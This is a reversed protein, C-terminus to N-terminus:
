RARADPRLWPEPDIAEGSRQIELYLDPAPETRDPMAGIPEGALVTRGAEAYVAALGAIVMYYDDGVNLILLGHYAGFPGAFEVHADFPSVVQAQPRASILVGEAPEDNDDDEGFRRVVHGAVPPRLRGRVDAFRLTELPEAPALAAVLTQNPRLTPEPTGSDIDIRLPNLRPTVASMAQLRAMLGRLTRAEDGAARAAQAYQAAESRRERELAERRAILEEIEGRQRDLLTEAQELVGRQTQTAGRVTRLRELQAALADARERLAPAIDSLLGAARAAEVADGPAIAMAPPTGREIRQLAALVDILAERDETLRALIDAEEATLDGIRSEADIAARESSEARRAAAILQDQLEAIERALADAAAEAAEAQAEAERRQTELREIEATDPPPSEVPDTQLLLLAALGFLM